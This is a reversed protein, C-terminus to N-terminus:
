LLDRELKWFNIFDQLSGTWKNMDIEKSGAAGFRKGYVPTGWQWLYTNGDTWPKPIRVRFPNPNYFALWLNYKSFYKLSARESATNRQPSHALWYWWGTYIWIKEQPIGNAQLRELFDYLKKWGGYPGHYNEEYDVTVMLEGMDPKLLSAYLDAQINVKRRSDMFWYSGRPLHADLANRWNDEWMPDVWNNQGARIVTGVIGESKMQSFNIVGQYFSVDTLDVDGFIVDRHVKLRPADYYQQLGAWSIPPLLTQLGQGMKMQNYM